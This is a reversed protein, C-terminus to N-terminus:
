IIRIFRSRFGLTDQHHHYVLEGVNKGLSLTDNLSLTLFSSQKYDIEGKLNYNIEQNLFFEDDIIKFERLKKLNGSKDYYSWWGCPMNNEQLGKSLLNGNKYYSFITDSIVSNKYKTTRKLMGGKYFEEYVGDFVGIKNTQVRLKISGDPYYEEKINEKNCSFCSVALFCIVIVKNMLFKM